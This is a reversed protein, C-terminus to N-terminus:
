AIPAVRRGAYGPAPACAQPQYAKMWKHLSHLSVGLRASVDAVKHERDVIQKVVEIKFEGSYPQKSTM